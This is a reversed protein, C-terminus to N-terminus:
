KCLVSGQSDLSGKSHKEGNMVYDKALVEAASSDSKDKTTVSMVITQSPPGTVQNGSLETKSTANSQENTSSLDDTSLVDVQRGGDRSRNLFCFRNVFM